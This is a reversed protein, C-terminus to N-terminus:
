SNHRLLFRDHSRSRALISEIDELDGLVPVGLIRRQLKAPDDDLFGIPLYRRKPNNRLERVLLAGADGAGYILAPRGAPQHRSALDAIVRFSLRSGIALLGLAMLNIVFVGRSYGEFRYLYVLAIVSTLTGFALGKLYTTLDGVSFYRWVGRYVGAVFFSLLECAIVIPLSQLFLHHYSPLERDFRIVYALYYAVM